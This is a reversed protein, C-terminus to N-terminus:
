SCCYSIFTYPFPVSSINQRMWFGDYVNQLLIVATLMGRLYQAMKRSIISSVISQKTGCTMEAKGASNISLDYGATYPNNRSFITPQEM